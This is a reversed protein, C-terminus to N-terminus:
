INAIDTNIETNTVTNNITDKKFFVTHDVMYGLVQWKGNCIVLKSSGNNAQIWATDIIDKHSEVQSVMYKSSAGNAKITVEMGASPKFVKWRVTQYVSSSQTPPSIFSPLSIGDTQQAETPYDNTQLKNNVKTVFDSVQPKLYMRIIWGPGGPFGPKPKLKGNYKGGFGKLHDKYKKTDKGFVVFSKPSYDAINLNKLTKPSESVSIESGPQYDDMNTPLTAINM